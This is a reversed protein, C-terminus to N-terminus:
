SLHKEENWTPIHAIGASGTRSEVVMRAQKTGIEHGVISLMTHVISIHFHDPM